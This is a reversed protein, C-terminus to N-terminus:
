AALRQEISKVIDQPDTEVGFECHPMLVAIKEVVQRYVDYWDSSLDEAYKAETSRNGLAQSLINLLAPNSVGPGLPIEHECLVQRVGERLATVKMRYEEDKGATSVSNSETHQIEQHAGTESM